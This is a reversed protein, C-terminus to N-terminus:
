FQILTETLESIILNKILSTEEGKEGRLKCLLLRFLGGEKWSKFHSRPAEQKAMEDVCTLTQINM